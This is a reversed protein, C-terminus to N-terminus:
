NAGPASDQGIVPRGAAIANVIKVGSKWERLV